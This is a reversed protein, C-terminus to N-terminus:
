HPDGTREPTSWLLAETVVRSRTLAEDKGEARLSRKERRIESGMDCHNTRTITHNSAVDRVPRGAGRLCLVEDYAIDVTHLTVVVAGLMYCPPMLIPFPFMLFHFINLNCSVFKEGM